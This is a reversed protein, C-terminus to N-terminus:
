FAQPVLRQTNRPLTNQNFVTEFSSVEAVRVEHEARTIATYAWNTNCLPFNEMLAVVKNFRAGEANDGTIAYGLKIGSYIMDHYRLIVERNEVYGNLKNNTIHFVFEDGKAWKLTAFQGRFLDLKYNNKTFIVRDEPYYGKDCITFCAGVNKNARRLQVISNLYDVTDNRPAIIQANEEIAYSTIEKSGRNIYQFAGRQVPREKALILNASESIEKSDTRLVNRLVTTPFYQVAQSFFAGYGFSGMQNVDGVFLIRIGSLSLCALEYLDQVNIMSAEDIVLLSGNQINIRHHLLKEKFEVITISNHLSTTKKLREVATISLATPVLSTGTLKKNVADIASIVETKGVGSAGQICSIPNNMASLVAQSQDEHLSHKRQNEYVAIQDAVEYNYFKNISTSEIKSLYERIRNEMFHSSSSTILNKDQVVARARKAYWLVEQANVGYESTDLDLYHFLSSGSAKTMRKLEWQGVAILRRPDDRHIGFRKAISDARNFNIIPMLCYPNSKVLEIINTKYVSFCDASERSSLGISQLYHTAKIEQDKRRWTTQLRVAIMNCGLVHELESGRDGALARILSHPEKHYVSKLRSMREKTLINKFDLSHELYDFINDPTIESLTWAEAELVIRGVQPKLQGTVSIFYGKEPPACDGSLKVQRQKDKYIGYLILKSQSHSVRTVILRHTVQKLKDM